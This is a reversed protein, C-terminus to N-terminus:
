PKARKAVGAEEGAGGERDRKEGGLRIVQEANQRRGEELTGRLEKNESRWQEREVNWRERETEWLARETEWAERDVRWSEREATYATLSTTLSAISAELTTCRALTTDVLSAKQELDKVHQEKRERFARQAARNQAARKTDKLPKAADPGTGEEGELEDKGDEHGSSKGSGKVGGKGKGKGKSTVAETKGNKQKQQQQQLQLEVSIDAVGSSTSVGGVDYAPFGAPGGDSGGGLLNGNSNPNYHQSTAFFNNSDYESPGPDYVVDGYGAASLAALTMQDDPASLTGRPPSHASPLADRAAADKEPSPAKRPM